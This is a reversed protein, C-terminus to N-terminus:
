GNKWYELVSFIDGNFDVTMDIDIRDDDYFVLRREAEEITRVIGTKQAYAGGSKKEDPVFYTVMIEPQEPLKEKLLRLKASLKELSDEDMELFDDTLRATEKIAESHGTLAAFPAFQVARDSVSMHKRVVSQHHPLNIIHSYDKM